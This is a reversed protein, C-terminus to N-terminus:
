VYTFESPYLDSLYCHEFTAIKQNTPLDVSWHHFGGDNMWYDLKDDSTELQHKSYLRDLDKQMKEPWKSM